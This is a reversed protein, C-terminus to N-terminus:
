GFTGPWRSSHTRYMSYSTMGKWVERTLVRADLVSLGKRRVLWLCTATAGAAQRSSAGSAAPYITPGALSGAQEKASERYDVRRTADPVMVVM